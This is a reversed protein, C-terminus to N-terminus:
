IRKTDMKGEMRIRLRVIIDKLAGRLYEFLPRDNNYYKEILIETAKEALSEMESNDELAKGTLMHLVVDGYVIECINDIMDKYEPNYRKLIQEVLDAPFQKLFIQELRICKIYEYIRDIGSYEQINRLIPYDLTLITNQPEFRIDYWKFFEPMGKIFTEQLCINGYDSFDQVTENYIQLAAETKERVRELGIEYAQLAPMKESSIIGGDAEREMENICYLVAGMLQEAKEYTISTSEFGTYKEALKAVIPILEEMEYNM